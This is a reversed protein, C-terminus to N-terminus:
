QLYKQEEGNLVAVKALQFRSVTPVDLVQVVYRIVETNLVTYVCCMFVDPRQVYVVTCVITPLVRPATPPQSELPLM